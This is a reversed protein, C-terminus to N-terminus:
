RIEWIKVSGNAAGTAWRNLGPIFSIASVASDHAPYRTGTDIEGSNSDWHWVWLSNGAGAAVRKGDPSIAVAKVQDSPGLARHFFGNWLWVKKGAAVVLAQGDGSIAVLPEKSDDPDLTLAPSLPPGFDTSRKPDPAKWLEVLATDGDQVGAALVNGGAALSVVRGAAALNQLRTGNSPDWVRVTNDSSGSALGAGAPLFQLANIFDTHQTFSDGM